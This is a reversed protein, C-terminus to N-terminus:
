WRDGLGEGRLAVLISETREESAPGRRGPLAPLPGRRLSSRRHSLSVVLLGPGISSCSWGTVGRLAPASGRPQFAADLVTRRLEDGVKEYLVLGAPHGELLLAPEGGTGPLLRFRGAARVDGRLRALVLPMPADTQEAAADALMQASEMLVQAALALALMTVVLAVLLEVLTFGAQATPRSM